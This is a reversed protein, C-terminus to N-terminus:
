ADPDTRNPRALRRYLAGTSEVLHTPSYDAARAAAARGLRERLAPDEVLRAIAAAIAEPSRAEVLVADVDATLIETTGGVATAVIPLGVAAAELVANPLGETLSAQVLMDFAPYLRRADPEAGHLRVVGTLRLRAIEAELDARLPGEGVLVFRLQPFRDHLSGAAAVISALGKEPKYNGVTGVVVDEDAFGWDTRIADRDAASRVVPQVANPIVHVRARDIGDLEVAEEAAVRSNAVIAAMRRGALKAALRRLRSKGRYLDGLNRRGGILVPVRAYPQVVAAFIMPPVLWADVIDVDATLTRYRRAARVATVLCGPRIPSCASRSLGLVDVPVGLAEAEGTMAGRDSLVIFSVAFEDKPLAGALILMQREAGGQALTTLYAIRIPGERRRREARRM